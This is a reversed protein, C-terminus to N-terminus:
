YVYKPIQYQQTHSIKPLNFADLTSFTSIRQIAVMIDLHFLNAVNEIESSEFEVYIHIVRNVWTYEM